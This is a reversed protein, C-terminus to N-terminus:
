ESVSGVETDDQLFGDANSSSSLDVNSTDGGEDAGYYSRERDPDIGLLYLYPMELSLLFGLYNYCYRGNNTCTELTKRNRQTGGRLPSFTPANGLLTTGKLEKDIGM